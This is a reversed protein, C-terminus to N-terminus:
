QSHAEPTSATLAGADGPRQSRRGPSHVARRLDLWQEPQAMREVWVWRSAQQARTLCLLMVLQADVVVQVQLDDDNLAAASPLRSSWRVRKSPTVLAEHWLEGDWILQGRECTSWFSVVGASAALVAAAMLWVRSHMVDVRAGTSYFWVILAAAGAVWVLATLGILAGSRHVPYVM